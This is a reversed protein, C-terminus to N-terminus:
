EPIDNYAVMVTITASLDSSMNATNLDVYFEHMQDAGTATEIYIISNPTYAGNVTRSLQVVNTNDDNSIEVTYDYSNEANVTFDVMESDVESDSFVDGFDISSIGLSLSIAKVANGNIYFDGEAAWLFSSFLLLSFFFKNM